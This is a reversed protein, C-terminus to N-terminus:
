RRAEVHAPAGMASAPVPRHAPRQHHQGAAAVAGVFIVALILVVFMRRTIRWVCTVMLAIVFWGILTM